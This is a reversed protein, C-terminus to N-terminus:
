QYREKHVNVPVFKCGSYHTKFKESNLLIRLIEPDTKTAWLGFVYGSVFILIAGIPSNFGNFFAVALIVSVFFLRREVGM